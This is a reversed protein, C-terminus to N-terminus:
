ARSCFGSVPYTAMPTADPFDPTTFADPIEYFHLQFEGCARLEVRKLAGSVPSVFTQAFAPQNWGSGTAILYGRSGVTQELIIIEEAFAIAGVVLLAAVVLFVSLKYKIMTRNAYWLPSLIKM